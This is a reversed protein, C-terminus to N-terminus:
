LAELLELDVRTRSVCVCVCVLTYKSLMLILHGLKAQCKYEGDHRDYRDCKEHFCPRGDSRAALCRLSHRM